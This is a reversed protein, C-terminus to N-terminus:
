KIWGLSLKKNCSIIAIILKRCLNGTVYLFENEKQLVEKHRELFNWTGDMEGTIVIEWGNHTYRLRGSDVM